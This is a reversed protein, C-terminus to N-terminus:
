LSSIPRDSSSAIDYKDLIFARKCRIKGQQVTIIDDLMIKAILYTTDDHSRMDWYNPNSFHLGTACARNSIEPEEAEAWEGIKYQFTRDYLSTLDKHVQKYAIVYDKQPLLNTQCRINEKLNKSLDVKCLGTCVIQDEKM